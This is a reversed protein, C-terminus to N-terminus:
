MILRELCMISVLYKFDNGDVSQERAVKVHRQYSTIHNELTKRDWCRFFCLRCYHACEDLRLHYKTIHAEIRRKVDIVAKGEKHLCRLFQYARGYHRAKRDQEVEQATRLDMTQRCFVIFSNKSVTEFSRM